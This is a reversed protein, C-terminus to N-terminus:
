RFCISFWSSPSLKTNYLFANLLSIWIKLFCKLFENERLSMRLSFSSIWFNISVCNNFYGFYFILKRVWTSYIRRPSFLVIKSLSIKLMREEFKMMELAREFLFKLLIILSCKNSINLLSFSIFKGWLPHTDFM